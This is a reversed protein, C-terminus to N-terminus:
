DENKNSSYFKETAERIFIKSKACKPSSLSCQNYCGRCHNEKLYQELEGM